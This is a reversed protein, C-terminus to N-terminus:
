IRQQWQCYRYGFPQIWKEPLPYQFLAYSIPIMGAAVFLPAVIWIFSKIILLTVFAHLNEIKKYIPFASMSLQCGTLLFFFRLFIYKTLPPGPSFSSLCWFTCTTHIRQMFPRIESLRAFISHPQIQPRELPFSCCCCISIFPM